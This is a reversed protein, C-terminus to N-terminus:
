YFFQLLFHICFFVIFIILSNILWSKNIPNHYTIGLFIIMPVVVDANVRRAPTILQNTTM